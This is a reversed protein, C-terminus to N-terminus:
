EPVCVTRVQGFRDEDVIEQVQGEPCSSTDLTGLGIPDWGFAIWLGAYLVVLAGVIWKWAESRDVSLM